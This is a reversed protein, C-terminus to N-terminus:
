KRVLAGQLLAPRGTDQYARTTIANQIDEPEELQYQELPISVAQGRPDLPSNVYGSTDAQPRTHWQYGSWAITIVLVALLVKNLDNMASYSMIDGVRCVAM